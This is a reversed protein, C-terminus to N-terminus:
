RSQPRAESSARTVSTTALPLPSIPLCAPNLNRHRRAHPNLDWRGCALCGAAGKVASVSPVKTCESARMGQSSGSVIMEAAPGHARSTTHRIMKASVPRSMPNRKESSNNLSLKETPSNAESQKSTRHLYKTTALKRSLLTSELSINRKDEIRELSTPSRAWQQNLLTITEAPLSLM